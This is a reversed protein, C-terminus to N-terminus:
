RGRVRLPMTGWSRLTNNLRRRPEGVLEIRDVKNALATLVAEGELRGFHQGVCQHVGMGFGVHGSSNRSMDYRDPDPFRRPDRNAAGLSLLIRGDTPIAKGGIEIPRAATRFIVQLPSDLRMAEEFAFRAKRPDDRLMAWQEPDTALCHLAAALAAVTTDVGATLLSRILLPAEEAPIDGTDVAEWIRAGLGDPHLHERRTQETIAAIAPEARSLAETFLRNPPGAANFALNGYTLLHPRVPASLGIADPFVTLPFVEALDAVGDITGKELLRDVLRAASEAFSTRLHRLARASLLSDMLARRPTHAPPDAEILLSPTRFNTATRIDIVGVGASSILDETNRLAARVEEYRGAAYVGYASMWVLPGAERLREQFEEPRTLVNEDYPDLDLVPIDQGTSTTTM